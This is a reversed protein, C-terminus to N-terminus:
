GRVSAAVESTGSWYKPHSARAKVGASPTRMAPFSRRAIPLGSAMKLAESVSSSDGRRGAATACSIWVHCGM